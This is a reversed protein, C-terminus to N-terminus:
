RNQKRSKEREVADLIERKMQQRAVTRRKIKKERRAIAQRMQKQEANFRFNEVQDASFQPWPSPNSQTLPIASLSKPDQMTICDTPCAPLCLKCGTCQANIVTHMMKGTGIICEVPCAEICLKCGICRQEDIVATLAPETNGYDTNLPRVERHLLEALFKITVDGGPPCQNIDADGCALAEAYDRCRPFSCLTCQTQPLQQDIEDVLHSFTHETMASELTAGITHLFAQIYVM